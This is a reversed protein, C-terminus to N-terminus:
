VGGGRKFALWAQQAKKRLPEPIVNKGAGEIMADLKQLSQQSSVTYHAETLEGLLLGFLLLHQNKGAFYIKLNKPLYHAKLEQGLAMLFPLVFSSEEFPAQETLTIALTKEHVATKFQSFFDPDPCNKGLEISLAQALGKIPFTIILGDPLNEVTTEAQSEDSTTM